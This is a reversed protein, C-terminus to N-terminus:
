VSKIGLHYEALTRRAGPLSLGEFSSWTVTWSRDQDIYYPAFIYAAPPTIPAGGADNMILGFGLRDAWFRALGSLDKSDILLKDDPGFVATSAPTWVIRHSQGDITIDLLTAVAARRWRDDVKHPQAGFAEYLSKVVASKGMQNGALLLTTDGRFSVHLAARENQSM